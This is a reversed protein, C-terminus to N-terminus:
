DHGHGHHHHGHAHDHSHGHAHDHSHGHSHGHGSYAGAEPEFPSLEPGVHVGLGVLMHELVHDYELLLWGEGVQLPVHRNGLHYAALALKRPDPATVRMVKEQAAQVAVIRGDAARLRDGGRLIGGRELMLAASAGSELVVSMRSKQRQDFPLVLQDDAAKEGSYREGILLM